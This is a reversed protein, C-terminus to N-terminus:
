CRRMMPRWGPRRDDFNFYIEPTNEGDEKVWPPVPFVTNDPLSASHDIQIDLLVTAEYDEEQYDAFLETSFSARCPPRDDSDNLFYFSKCTACSSLFFLALGFALGRKMFRM